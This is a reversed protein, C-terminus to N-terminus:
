PSCMTLIKESNLWESMLIKILNKKNEYLVTYEFHGSLAHLLKNNIDM